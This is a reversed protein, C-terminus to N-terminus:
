EIVKDLWRLIFRVQLAARRDEPLGKGIKQTVPGPGVVLFGEVIRIFLFKDRVSTLAEVRGRGNIEALEQSDIAEIGKFPDAALPNGGEGAAASWVPTAVLVVASVAIILKGFKM